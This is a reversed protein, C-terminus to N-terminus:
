EQLFGLGSIHHKNVFQQMANGCHDVLSCFHESLTRSHFDFRTTGTKHGRVNFLAIVPVGRVSNQGYNKAYSIILTLPTNM